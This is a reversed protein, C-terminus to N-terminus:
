SVTLRFAVLGYLAAVLPLMDIITNPLANPAAPKLPHRRNETANIENVGVAESYLMHILSLENLPRTADPTPVPNPPQDNTVVTEVRSLLLAPTKEYLAALRLANLGPLTTALPLMGTFARPLPNPNALKLPLRRKDIANPEFEEVAESLLTQLLSLENIPRTGEPTPAPDFTPITSAVTPLSIPLVVRASDYLAADIIKFEEARTEVPEDTNVIMPCPKLKSEKELKEKEARPIVENDSTRQNDDEDNVNFNQGPM